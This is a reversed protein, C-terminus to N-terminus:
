YRFTGENSPVIVGAEDQVLPTTCVLPDQPVALNTV